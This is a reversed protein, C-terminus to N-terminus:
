QQHRHHLCDNQGYQSPRMPVPTIWKQSTIPVKEGFLLNWYSRWWLPRHNHNYHRRVEVSLNSIATSGFPPAASWPTSAEPRCFYSTSFEYSRYISSQGTGRPEYSFQLFSQITNTWLGAILCIPPLDKMTITLLPMAQGTCMAGRWLLALHPKRETIAEVLTRYNNEASVLAEKVGLSMAGLLNCPVGPDFFASCLLSDLAGPMSSISICKDISEFLREYKKPWKTSATSGSVM